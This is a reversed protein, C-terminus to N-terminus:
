GSGKIFRYAWYAWVPLGFGFFEQWFNYGRALESVTIFGLWFVSLVIAIRDKKKINM